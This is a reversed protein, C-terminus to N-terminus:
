KDEEEDQKKNREKKPPITFIFQNREMQNQLSIIYIFEFPSDRYSSDKLCGLATYLTVPM